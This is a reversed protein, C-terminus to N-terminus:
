KAISKVPARRFLLWNFFALVAAAALTCGTFIWPSGTLFSAPAEFSLRFYNILIPLGVFIFLPGGVAVIVTWLKNLRYFILSILMGTLYTLSIVAFFALTSEINIMMTGKGSTSSAFLNQYLDFVKVGPSNRTIATGATIFLREGIALIMSIIMIILCEVIFITRRGYGHQIFLRLDERITVIGVVFVMIAAAMGFGSISSIEVEEFNIIIRVAGFILGTLVITAIAYFLAIGPLSSRLKYRLAKGIHNHKM